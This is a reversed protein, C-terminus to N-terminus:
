KINKINTIKNTLVVCSIKGEGRELFHDKTSKGYLSGRKLFLKYGRKQM